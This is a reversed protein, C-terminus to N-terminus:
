TLLKTRGYTAFGNIKLRWDSGFYRHPVAGIAGHDAFAAFLEGHETAFIYRAVPAAPPDAAGLEALLPIIPRVAASKTVPQSDTSL